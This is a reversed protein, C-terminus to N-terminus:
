EKIEELHKVIEDMAMGRSGKVLIVDGKRIWQPLVSKLMDRGPFHFAQIGGDKAAASIHEANKGVSLVVNIGKHSAYEGIQRHYEEEMEGLEFMDGLIAIKRGGKVSALVNLAAKMSDPSANYTDDIIKIGHAESIHLRKDTATMKALGEAAQEMSVDFCLAAAVALAGNMANHIGPSGVRFSGKKEGKQLNFEIGKEGGDSIESIRLEAETGEGVTLIRYGGDFSHGSILDNDANIILTDEEGMFDSIEAKARLINERSGLRELHSIGVNTIVAAHPRVIEALRHIEGLRDMGMEFVAAETTCDVQFVSLPLGILNNYNGLNRVTKYRESLMHFLMEKTTTKGTSGTIGVKIVHFRSLYWAALDQLAKETSEVKILEVSVFRPEFPLVDDREVILVTCGADLAERLFDHGDVREGKLAFFAMGPELERSDISIGTVEAEGNGYAGWPLSGGTVEAIKSAKMKEM